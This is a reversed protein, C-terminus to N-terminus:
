RENAFLAEIWASIQNVLNPLFTTRTVMGTDKFNCTGTINKWNERSWLKSWSKKEATTMSRMRAFLVYQFGHMLVIKPCFTYARNVLPDDSSAQKCLPRIAKNQAGTFHTSFASSGSVEAVDRACLVSASHPLSRRTSIAGILIRWFCTEASWLECNCDFHAKLIIHWQYSLEEYGKIPLNKKTLNSCVSKM